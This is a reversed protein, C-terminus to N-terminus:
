TGVPLGREAVVREQRTSGHLNTGYSERMESPPSGWAKLARKKLLIRLLQLLLDDAFEKTPQPDDETLHGKLADDIMRFLEDAM